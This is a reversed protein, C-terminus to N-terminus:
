APKRERACSSSRACHSYPLIFTSQPRFHASLTCAGPLSCGSPETSTAWSALLSTDISSSSWFPCTPNSCTPTRELTHTTYNWPYKTFLAAWCNFSWDIIAALSPLAAGSCGFCGTHQTSHQRQTRAASGADATGWGRSRHSTSTALLPPSRLLAKGQLARPLMVPMVALQRSPVLPLCQSMVPLPCRQSLARVPRLSLENVPCLRQSLVLVSM